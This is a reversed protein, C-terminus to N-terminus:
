NPAELFTVSEFSWAEANGGWVYPCAKRTPPKLGNSFYARWIPDNGWTPLPSFLFYKLQWWGTKQTVSLLCGLGVLWLLSTALFFIWPSSQVHKVFPMTVVEGMLLDDLSFMHKLFFTWGLFFSGDSSTNTTKKNKENKQNWRSGEERLWKTFFPKRWKGIIEKVNPCGFKWQFLSSTPPQVLGDSFLHLRWIEFNGGGGWSETHSFHSFFTQTAVLNSSYPLSSHTQDNKKWAGPTWLVDIQHESRYGSWLGETDTGRVSPSWGVLNLAPPFKGLSFRYFTPFDNGFPVHIIILIQKNMHSGWKNM